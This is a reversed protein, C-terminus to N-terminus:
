YLSLFLVFSIGLRFGPQWDLTMEGISVSSVWPSPAVGSKLASLMQPM